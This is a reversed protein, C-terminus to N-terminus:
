ARQPPTSETPGILCQTFEEPRAGVIDYAAKLSWVVQCESGISETCMQFVRALGFIRPDKGVVVHKRGTPISPRRCGLSRVTNSPITMHKAASLDYIAAYPGGRATVESLHQYVEEALELTIVEATVTLRIVSHTPDLDVEYDM